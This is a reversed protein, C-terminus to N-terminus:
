TASVGSSARHSAPFKEEAGMYSLKTVKKRVGGLVIQARNNNCEIIFENSSIMDLGIESIQPTQPTIQNKLHDTIDHSGLVFVRQSLFRAAPARV